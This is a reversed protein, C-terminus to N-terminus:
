LNLSSDECRLIILSTFKLASAQLVYLLETTVQYSKDPVLRSKNCRRICQSSDDLRMGGMGFSPRESAM